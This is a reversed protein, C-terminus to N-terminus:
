RGRSQRLHATSSTLAMAASARWSRSAADPISRRGRAAARLLRGGQRPRCRRAGTGQAPQRAQAQRRRRARCLPRLPRRKCGITSAAPRDVGLERGDVGGSATGLEGNAASCSVRTAAIRTTRAASSRATSASRSRCAHRQRLHPLPASRRRRGQRPLHAARSGRQARRAGRDHAAGQYRRHRRLFRALFRAHGGELRDRQQLHPRPEAGARRYFRIRRLPTFFEGLLRHRHRGKDAAVLRKKELTVYDREQLVAMISAYTSPRGIGLEEMSKVLSAESYRPPPETFHQAIDITERTLPDGDACRRCAANRMTRRRTTAARRTSSSSATSRVVQGTARLDLMRGGANALIDATTREIIASEMQSAVARM